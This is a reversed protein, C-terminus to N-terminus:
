EEVNALGMDSGAADAEFRHDFALSHHDNFSEDNIDWDNYREVLPM